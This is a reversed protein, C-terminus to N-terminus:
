GIAIPTARRNKFTLEWKAGQALALKKALAVHQYIQTTNHADSSFTFWQGGLDIYRKIISNSPIAQATERLGSANIELAKNGEVLTKLITDIMEPGHHHEM